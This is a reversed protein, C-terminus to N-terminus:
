FDYRFSDAVEREKGKFYYSPISVSQRFLSDLRCYQCLVLMSLVCGQFAEWCVVRLILWPQLIMRAAWKAQWNTFDVVRILYMSLYPFCVRGLLM